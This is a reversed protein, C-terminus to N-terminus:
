LLAIVDCENEKSKGEQSAIKVSKPKVFLIDPRGAAKREGSVDKNLQWQDTVNPISIFEGMKQCANKTINPEKASELSTVAMATTVPAM